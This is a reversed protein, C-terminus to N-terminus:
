LRQIQKYKGQKSPESKFRSPKFQKKFKEYHKKNSHKQYIKKPKDKACIKSLLPNNNLLEQPDNCNIPGAYNKPPMPGLVNHCLVKSVIRFPQKVPPLNMSNLFCFGEQKLKFYTVFHEGSLCILWQLSELQVSKDLDYGLDNTLSLLDKIPKETMDGYDGGVTFVSNEGLKAQLASRLIEVEFERTADYLRDFEVQAGMLGEFSLLQEDPFGLNSLVANAAHKGCQLGVQEEVYMQTCDKKFPKVPLKAGFDFTNYHDPPMEFVEEVQEHVVGAPGDEQQPCGLEDCGKCLADTCQTLDLEGTGYVLMMCQEFDACATSQQQVMQAPKDTEDARRSAVFFVFGVSLLILNNIRLYMKPLILNDIRLYM